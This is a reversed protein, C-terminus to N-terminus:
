TLEENSEEICAIDSYVTNSSRTRRTRPRFDQAAANHGSRGTKLSQFYLSHACKHLPNFQPLRTIPMDFFIPNLMEKGELEGNAFPHSTMPASETGAPGASTKTVLSCSRAASPIPPMLTILQFSTRLHLATAGHLTLKSAVFFVM